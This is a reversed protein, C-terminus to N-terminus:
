GRTCAIMPSTVDSMLGHLGHGFEHFRTRADDFSPLTPQGDVANAFNMVNIVLPRVEGDLKHQSRLVTMWAGSRKSSRAFYDGFFLGQFKAQPGSVEWVRVDTHWVPVDHRERFTLGFLRRATDFAAAIMNDLALYPAIEAADIACRAKRLKEAYYRWDWAALDFNGGQQRVLDQLADRDAMARAQAPSWVRELLAQVAQPTKAMADDHRYDAFTRYGRLRAREAPLGAGPPPFTGDYRGLGRAEEPTLGLTDRGDWLAKIRAYLGDHLHIRNRHAAILPSMEREIAMLADNTHAGALAHFVASVRDLARGSRELAVITNAFSPTASGTAIAEMEAMHGAMARDFAPRSPEPRIAPFPPREDPPTGEGLLANSQDQSGNPTATPPLMPSDPGSQQRRVVSGQYPKIRCVM